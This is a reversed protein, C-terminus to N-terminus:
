YKTIRICLYKGKNEYNLAGKNVKFYYVVIIISNLIYPINKLLKLLMEREVKSIELKFIDEGLIELWIVNTLM